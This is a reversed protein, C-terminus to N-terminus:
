LTSEQCEAIESLHEAAKSYYDLCKEPNTIESLSTNMLIYVAEESLNFRSKLKDEAEEYSSSCRFVEIIEEYADPGTTVLERMAKAQMRAYSLCENVMENFDTELTVLM